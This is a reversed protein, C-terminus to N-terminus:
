KTIVRAKLIQYEEETIAGKEKLALLREIEAAPSQQQQVPVAAPANSVRTLDFLEEWEGTRKIEESGTAKDAVAVRFPSNIKIYSAESPRAELKLHAKKLHAKVPDHDTVTVEVEGPAVQAAIYCNNHVTGVVKGDISVDYLTNEQNMSELWYVYVVSQEATTQVEKFPQKSCGAMWLAAMVMMATGLIKSRM